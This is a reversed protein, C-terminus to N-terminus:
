TNMDTNVVDLLCQRHVEQEPESAAEFDEEDLLDDIGSPAETSEDAADQAGDVGATEEGAKGMKSRRRAVGEVPVDGSGSPPAESPVPSPTAWAAPDYVTNFFDSDIEIKGDSNIRLGTLQRIQEPDRCNTSIGDKAYYPIDGDVELLIIQGEPSIIAPHKGTLWIFTYGEHM